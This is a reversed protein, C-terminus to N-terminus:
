ATEFHWVISNLKTNAGLWLYASEKDQETSDARGNEAERYILCNSWHCRTTVPVGQITLYSHVALTVPAMAQEAAKAPTAKTHRLYIAQISASGIEKAPQQAQIHGQTTKELVL